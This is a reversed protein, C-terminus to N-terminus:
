SRLSWGSLLLDRETNTQGMLAMLNGPNGPHQVQVLLHNALHKGLRLQGVLVVVDLGSTLRPLALADAETSRYVRGRGPCARGPCRYGAHILKIVASLTVVTRQLLTMAQGLTSHCVSCEHESPRCWRRLVRLSGKARKMTTGELIAAVRERSKRLKGGEDLTRKARVNKEGRKLM